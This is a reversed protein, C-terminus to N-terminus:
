WSLSKEVIGALQEREEALNDKALVPALDLVRRQPICGEVLKPIDQSGYGVQSLGRPVEVKDLFKTIEESLARGIDEDRIAGLEHARAPGLFISLADRHRQPSSPATFAFVAPATLSVAVGHPILPINPSYSPHHYQANKPRGKNLSSIPYSFAHCMHVGANGFGIGATSAALLMQERAERDGFPDRAIRPLYKITTELAWRSFIDSIPNSGQYAPRQIPNAPRPTREYYPVATWSELSHFLVDLGAAISVEKPCTVTNMVDVIGLTPKLARSAIGTKFSKSPIDLIATGTTESGTGATTPIAILPSLKRDIPTGKGIPANIFEYIDSEPYNTFLNAAKATDMSSGGGVALFHTINSSRAFDIAEQWSKDTPEVSCKDWVVWNLGEGMLSQEVVQMVPLKVVNPDTFIGIKAQSRDATPLQRIMNSLDMGVERTAGAGFRLTSAAMEFAYDTNGPPTSGTAIDVPTAMGRMGGTMGGLAPHAHRHAHHDLASHTRGCGRCGQNATLSLLRNISARSAPSPM